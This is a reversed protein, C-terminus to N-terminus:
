PSLFGLEEPFQRPAPHGPDSEPCLCLVSVSRGASEPTHPWSPPPPPPAPALFSFSFGDGPVGCTM